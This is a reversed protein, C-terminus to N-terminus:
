YFGWANHSPISPKQAPQPKGYEDIARDVYNGGVISSRVWAYDLRIEFLAPFGNQYYRFNPHAKGINTLTLSALLQLRSLPLFVHETLAPLDSLIVETLNPCAACVAEIFKDDVEHTNTYQHCALDSLNLYTLEKGLSRIFALLEETSLSKLDSIKTLPLKQESIYEGLSLNYFRALSKHSAQTLHFANDTEISTFGQYWPVSGLTAVKSFALNLRKLEKNELWSIDQITDTFSLDLVKLNKLQGIAEFDSAVSGKLILEAILRCQEIGKLSGYNGFTMKLRILNPFVSYPLGELADSHSLSLERLSALQMIPIPLQLSCAKLKLTRLRNLPYVTFSYKNAKDSHTIELREVNPFPPLNGNRTSFNVWRIRPAIEAMSNDLAIESGKNIAHVRPDRDGYALLTLRVVEYRVDESALRSVRNILRGCTEYNSSLPQSNKEIFTLLDKPPPLPEANSLFHLEQLFSTM